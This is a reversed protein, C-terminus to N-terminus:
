FYTRIKMLGRKIRPKMPQSSIFFETKGSRIADLIARAEKQARVLMYTGGMEEPFHSDSGIVSPLNHERAFSLAKENFRRFITRANFVEIADIHELCPKIANGVGRRMPDFPHPVIIFGGAERAQRITELLPRGNPLTERLCLVILEGELTVTEQGPIVLLGTGRALREAELAGSVTRHDTVAIADFGMELAHKVMSEPSARSDRSHNTHIHLDVKLPNPKMDTVSLNTSLFLKFVPYMRLM